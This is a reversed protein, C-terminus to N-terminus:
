QAHDALGNRVVADELLEATPPHTDYVLGLIRPQM